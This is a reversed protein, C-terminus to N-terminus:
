SSTPPPQDTGYEDDGMDLDLIDEVLIIIEEESGVFHDRFHFFPRTCLRALKALLGYASAPLM